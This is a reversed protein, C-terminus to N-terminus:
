EPGFGAADKSSATCSGPPAPDPEIRRLHDRPPALAEDSMVGPASRRAEIIKIFRRDGAHVPWDQPRGRWL